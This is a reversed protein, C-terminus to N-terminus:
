SLSSCFETILYPYLKRNKSACAISSSKMAVKRESGNSMSSSHKLLSCGLFKRWSTVTFNHLLIALVQSRKCLVIESFIVFVCKWLILDLRRSPQLQQMSNKVLQLRRYRINFSNFIELKVITCKLCKNVVVLYKWPLFDILHMNNGVLGM